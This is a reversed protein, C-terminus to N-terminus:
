PRGGHGSVSSESRTVGSPRTTGWQRNLFNYIPVFVLGAYAGYLFSEFLGILFGWLTLWKFGPLLTELVRYVQVPQPVILLHIVCVVFTIAAFFGLSWSVVKLNLM